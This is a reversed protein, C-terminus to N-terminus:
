GGHTEAAGEGGLVGAVADIGEEVFLTDGVM